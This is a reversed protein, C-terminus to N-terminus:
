PNPIDTKPDLSEPKPSLAIPQPSCNASRKHRNPISLMYYYGSPQFMMIRMGKLYVILPGLM